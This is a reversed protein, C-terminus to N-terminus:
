HLSESKDEGSLNIRGAGDATESHRLLNSHRARNGPYNQQRPTLTRQAERQENRDLCALRELSTTELYKVSQKGAGYWRSIERTRATGKGNWRGSRRKIGEAEEFMTVVLWSPPETVSEITKSIM